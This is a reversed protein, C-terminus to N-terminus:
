RNPLNRNGKRTLPNLTFYTVFSLINRYILAASGGQLRKAGAALHAYVIRMLFAISRGVIVRDAGAVRAVRRGVFTLM